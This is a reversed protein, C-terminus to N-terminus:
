DVGLLAAGTRGLLPLHDVNSMAGLAVVLDVIYAALTDPPTEAVVGRDLLVAHFYDELVARVRAEGASVLDTATDQGIGILDAGHPSGAVRAMLGSDKEVLAATLTSAVPAKADLAAEFRMAAQDYLGEVVSRFIDRKNDFHLYLAARSMGAGSAIDEMSTRKFGYILFADLAADRIQQVKESSLDSARQTM